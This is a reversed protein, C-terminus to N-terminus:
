ITKSTNSRLSFISKRDYQNNKKSLWLQISTICPYTKLYLTAANIIRKDTAFELISGRKKLDIEDLINTIFEFKKKKKLNIM